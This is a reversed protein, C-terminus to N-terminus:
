WAVCPISGDPMEFCCIGHGGGTDCAIRAAVGSERESDSAIKDLKAGAEVESAATILSVRPPATEPNDTACGTTAIILTFLAGYLNKM